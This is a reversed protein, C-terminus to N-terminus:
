FTLFDVARTLWKEMFRIQQEVTWINRICCENPIVVLKQHAVEYIIIFTYVSM